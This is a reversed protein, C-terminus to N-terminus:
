DYTLLFIDTRKSFYSVSRVVQFYFLFANLQRQWFFDSFTSRPKMHCYFCYILSYPYYMKGKAEVGFHVRTSTLDQCFYLNCDGGNAVSPFPNTRVTSICLVANTEVVSTGICPSWEFVCISGYILEM